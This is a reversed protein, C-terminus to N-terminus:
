RVHAGPGPSADIFDPPTWGRLVFAHTLASRVATLREVPVLAIASGGFGGGTMRAGLAGAERAVEVAVDLEECSVEYDDRLSAHSADLLPGLLDWRDARLAEVFADVRRVESVVHRARRLLPEELGAQELAAPSAEALTTVGLLRAAEWAQDRRAEYGGDTLEHSVRTDIVLVGLDHSAPDFRVQERAGSGFDLLLAHHEEAHVSVAQDLGGTPAGVTESEARVSAQELQEPTRGLDLLADVAYAVSCELAASSSLGAGIPVDSSIAVDLGQTVDLALVVGAVYRVWGPADDLADVRGEWAEDRSTVRLRDDDRRGVRATTAQRLAFPLCRGGNYDVHEGILNVRGPAVGTTTASPAAPEHDPM